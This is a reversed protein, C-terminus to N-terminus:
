LPHGPRVLAGPPTAFTVVDFSLRGARVMPDAAAFERAEEATATAYFSLGRLSPDPADLLPGNMAVIGQERLGSLYALHAAQLEDLEAASFDPAEAPRRLMVVYYKHLEM